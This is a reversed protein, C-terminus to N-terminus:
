VVPVVRSCGHGYVVNRAARHVGKLVLVLALARQPLVDGSTKKM